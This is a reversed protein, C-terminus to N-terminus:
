TTVQPYVKTPYLKVDLTSHKIAPFTIIRKGSRKFAERAETDSCGPCASVVLDDLAIEGMDVELLRRYEELLEHPKVEDELVSLDSVVTRM